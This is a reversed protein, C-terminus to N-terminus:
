YMVKNTLKNTYRFKPDSWFLIQLFEQYLSYRAFCHGQRFLAILGIVTFMQGSFDCLLVAFPVFPWIVPFLLGSFSQLFYSQNLFAFFSYMVGGFVICGNLPRVVKCGNKAQRTRNRAQKAWKRGTMNKRGITDLKQGTRYNEPM